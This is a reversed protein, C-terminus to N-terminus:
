HADPDNKHTDNPWRLYSGLSSSSSSTSDRPDDQWLLNPKLKISNNKHANLDNRGSSKPIRPSARTTDIRAAPVEPDSPLKFGSFIDM